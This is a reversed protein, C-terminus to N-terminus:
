LAKDISHLASCAWCSAGFIMPHFAVRIKWGSL